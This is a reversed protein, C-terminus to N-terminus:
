RWMGLVRWLQQLLRGGAGGVVWVVCQQLSIVHRRLLRRRSSRQEAGWHGRGLSSRMLGRLQQLFCELVRMHQNRLGESFQKGLSAEAPTGRVNGEEEDAAAAHAAIHILLFGVTTTRM